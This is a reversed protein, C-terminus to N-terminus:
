GRLQEEPGDRRDGRDDQEPHEEGHQVGVRVVPQYAVHVAPAVPQGRREVVQEHARVRLLVHQDVPQAGRQDVHAETGQQGPQQAARGLGSWRPPGAPIAQPSFCATNVPYGRVPCRPRMSKTSLASCCISRDATAPRAPLYPRSYTALFTFASPRVVSSHASAPRSPYRPTATGSSYPPPPPPM